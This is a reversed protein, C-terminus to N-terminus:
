GLYSLDQKEKSKTQQIIVPIRGHLEMELLRGCGNCILHIVRTQHNYKIMQLKPLLCFVCLLYQEQENGQKTKNEKEM